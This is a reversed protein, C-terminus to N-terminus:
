VEIIKPHSWDFYDDHTLLMCGLQHEINLLRLRLDSIMKADSGKAQFGIFGPLRREFYGVEKRFRSMRDKLM